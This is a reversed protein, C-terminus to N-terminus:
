AVAERPLAAEAAPRRESVAAGARLIEAARPGCNFLLDVVSLRSVFDGPQTQPYRPHDFEQWRVEVGAAALLARDLYGRSGGSGSLYADAGVAQCLSLIMESRAGGVGPLESSRLIPTRIALEGLFYDLLALDLAALSTWGRLLIGAIPGMFREYFPARRYAHHLTGVVRGAWTTRGDRTNNIEKDVIREDRSRQYVPVILWQVGHRTRVRNRNQFNQREFQVHDVLVFVDSRLIKDFYGLWPMFHPQHAGLLM